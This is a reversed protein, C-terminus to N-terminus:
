KESAKEIARELNVCIQKAEEVAISLVERESICEMIAPLEANVGYDCSDVWEIDHLAKVVKKLHKVFAKREPNILRISRAMDDLKTYFYDYSGGSM